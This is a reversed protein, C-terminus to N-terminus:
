STGELSVGAVGLSGLNSRQPDPTPTLAPKELVKTLQENFQDAINSWHFREETARKYGVEAYQARIFPDHYMEDMAQVMFLKSCVGGLTNIGCDAIQIHEVPVFKVAGDCWEGLGSWKPVIQPIGCAMGEHTTLGWGEGLTTSIQIDFSNYVFPMVNEPLGLVETMRRDTFIIRDEIGFYTALQLLDWGLDNLSCHLHLYANHINNMRIWNSFAMISLDLRKRGQNRNVNGVIFADKPLNSLGIMERAHYKDMPRYLESNVGHPIVAFPSNNGAGHLTRAGFETYCISLALLSLRDCIDQRMNPADVPMYGVVPIGNTKELFKIVNWPDNNVVVIDPQLRDLIKPLRKVGWVDGLSAAPYIPYRYPHPDGNYGIGLV